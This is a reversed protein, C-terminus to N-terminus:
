SHAVRSYIKMLEDTLSLYLNELETRCCTAVYAVVGHCDGRMFIRNRRVLRSVRHVEFQYNVLAGTLHYKQMSGLVCLCKDANQKILSLLKDIRCRGVVAVLDTVSVSRPSEDFPQSLQTRM